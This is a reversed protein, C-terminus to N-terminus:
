INTKNEHEGNRRPKEPEKIPKETTEEYQRKTTVAKTTRKIKKYQKEKTPEASSSEEREERNCNKFIMEQIGADKIRNKIPEEYKWLVKQRIKRRKIEKTNEEESSEWSEDGLSIEIAEECTPHEEDKDVEVVEGNRGKQRAEKVREKVCEGYKTMITERGEKNKREQTNEEERSGCSENESSKIEIIEEFSADQTRDKEEEVVQCKRRNRKRNQRKGVKRQEMCNVSVDECSKYRMAEKLEGGEEDGELREKENIGQEDAKEIKEEAWERYIRMLKEHQKREEEMDDEEEEEEEGYMEAEIPVM